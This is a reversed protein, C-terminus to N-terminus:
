LPLLFGHGGRRVVGRHSRGRSFFLQVYSAGKSELPNQGGESHGPRSGRSGRLLPVLNVQSRGITASTEAHWRIGRLAHRILGEGGGPSLPQPSLSPP